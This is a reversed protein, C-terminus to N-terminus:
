NTGEGDAGENLLKLNKTLVTAGPLFRFGKEMRTQTHTKKWAKEAYDIDDALWADVFKLTETWKEILPYHSCTDKVM